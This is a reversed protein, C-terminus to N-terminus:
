EKVRTVYEGTRTDVRILEGVKIFPPVTVVLGTEMTAPKTQNTATAGKIEPPTDTVELDVTNPLTVVVPKGEYMSVQLPTNPKLYKPGDGFADDDLTIQDFTETDMLIHEDGSSYLYEYNRKDLFAEEIVEESRLRVNQISGDMLSKLKTQYVAGGKGLKVHQFDVIAYLKEDIKVTQGKRM